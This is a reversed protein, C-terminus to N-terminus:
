DEPRAIGPVREEDRAVREGRPTLHVLTESGNGALMVLNLTALWTLDDLVVALDTGRFNQERCLGPLVAALLAGQYRDLFLLIYRRRAATVVTSVAQGRSM